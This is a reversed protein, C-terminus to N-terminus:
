LAMQWSHVVDLCIDDLREGEIVVRKHVDHVEPYPPALLLEDAQYLGFKTALIQAVMKLSQKHM